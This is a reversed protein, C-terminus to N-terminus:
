RLGGDRLQEGTSDVLPQRRGRQHVGVLEREAVRAREQVAKETGRVASRVGSLMQGISYSEASSTPGRLRCGERPSTHVGGGPTAM